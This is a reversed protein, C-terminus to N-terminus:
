MHFLNVTVTVIVNVTAIVFILLRSNYPIIMIILAGISTHSARAIDLLLLIKLIEKHWKNSRRIRIYM